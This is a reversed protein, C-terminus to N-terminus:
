EKEYWVLKGEVFTMLTKGKVKWGIFPSNTGKSEFDRADIEYDNDIDFVALDAPSGIQLNGVKLNFLSAPNLSMWRVVQELTFIGKKVFETYILSFATESGVIGFSGEVFSGEKEAKSHPAHDTSILDITGDLLGEVLAARDSKSPLPPNMKWIANDEIIDEDSLILHHPCVEATVHVGAKKADRILRLSEKTSVHCVHYHVGTAQALVLDRALQSSEVISPMGPIGLEHSRKGLRMVGGNMLSEEEVHAVIAKGLRAAELMAQYMTSASQIAAGDNSFAFAGAKILGEFDVLDGTRLEDTITAYQLVKVKAHEKIKEYIAKVRDPKSPVPNLNPMACITTYGGHAAALSGTEITEKYEFGPERLHVHLDVLGPIVLANKADYIKEVSGYIESLDSGIAKIKGSELLFDVQILKNEKDIIRANKIIFKM